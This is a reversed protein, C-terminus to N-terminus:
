LTRRARRNRCTAWRFAAKYDGRAFARKARSFYYDAQSEESEDQVDWNGYPQQNVYYNPGYDNSYGYDNGYDLVMMGGHDGYPVGDGYGRGWRGRWEDGYVNGGDWGRWDGDRGGRYYTGQEQYNYNPAGEAWPAPHQNHNQQTTNQETTNQQYGGNWSQESGARRAARQALM